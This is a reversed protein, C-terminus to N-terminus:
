RVRSRVYKSATLTQNRPGHQQQGETVTGAITAFDDLLTVLGLFNDVTVLQEPGDRCLGAILDFSLRAAEPQTM